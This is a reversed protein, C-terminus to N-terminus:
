RNVTKITKSKSLLYNIYSSCVVLMLKADDFDPSKYEGVIEHRIGSEKNNTYIYIKEISGKLQEDIEIGKSKLVNLGKGFTSEGTLIRIVTGLASVSEKISNGYDPKKKDSLKALANSLHINAGDSPTHQYIAQEIEKIEIENTIPCFLGYIIRYGSFEKELLSNIDVIFEELYFNSLELNLM